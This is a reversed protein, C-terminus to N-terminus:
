VDIGAPMSDLHDAMRVNNGVVLLLQRFGTASPCQTAEGLFMGNVTEVYKM